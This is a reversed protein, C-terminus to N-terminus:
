AYQLSDSKYNSMCCMAEDARLLVAQEQDSPTFGETGLSAQVSVSTDQWSISTHNLAWHLTCTRAHADVLSADNMLVIFEDDGMRAVHDTDRVYNKLVDAVKCLVTNSAEIGHAIGIEKIDALNIYILALNTNHRRAHSMSRHLEKKFGNRNLVKTLNDTICDHELVEIRKKQENLCMNTNQACGLVKQAISLVNTQDKGTAIANALAYVNKELEFADTTRLEYVNDSKLMLM